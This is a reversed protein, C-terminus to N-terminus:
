VLHGAGVRVAADYASVKYTYATAPSLGSDTFSPVPTRHRDGRRQPRGPLWHRRRQRDGRAMDAGSHHVHRGRDRAQGARLTCGHGDSPAAPQCDGPRCSLRRVRQGGADLARCRIPSPGWARHPMPTARDRDRDRDADRGAPGRVLGRRSVRDLRLQVGTGAVTATLGAPAAPPATVASRPM